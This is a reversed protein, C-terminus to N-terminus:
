RSPCPVYTKASLRSSDQFLFDAAIPYGGRPCVKPVRAGRPRFAVRKGHERRYYTLHLPGITSRFSVLSANPGDPLVPVTPITTNIHGGARASNHFVAAPFVLQAFVPMLGNAYFLVERRTGESPGAVASIGTSERVLEPGLPVEVVASGYGVRANLPCGKLGLAILTNTDCTALGLSTANLSMHGPLRINVGSLAAPVSGNTSGVTFSFVITTVAGRRDPTFAASLKVTEAASAMTGAYLVGGLCIGTLAVARLLRDFWVPPKWLNTGM